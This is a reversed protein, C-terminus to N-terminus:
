KKESVKCNTLVQLRSFIDWAIKSFNAMKAWFAWCHLNKVNKAIMENSNALKKVLGLRLGLKIPFNLFPGKQGSKPYKISLIETIYQKHNRM